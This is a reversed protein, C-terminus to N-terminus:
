QMKCQKVVDTIYNQLYGIKAQDNIIGARINLISQGSDQSLGITSDHVVAGTSSDGGTGSTGAGSQCGTISSKLMRVTADGNSLALRLRDNEKQANQLEEFKEKDLRNLADQAAKQRAMAIQQQELAESKVANLQNQFSIVQNNHALEIETIKSEYKNATASWTILGTMLVSIALLVTAIGIEIQKIM